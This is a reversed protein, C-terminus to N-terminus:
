TNVARKGCLDGDYITVDTLGLSDHSMADVLSRTLERGVNVRAQSTVYKPQQSM